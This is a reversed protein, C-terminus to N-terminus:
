NRVKLRWTTGRPSDELVIGMEDLRDRIADARAWAKEARATAREEILREVEDEDVTETYGALEAFFVEPTRDLFGLVHATSLLHCRDEKLQQLIEDPPTDEHSDILRNIEKVKEFMLGLAGSTNLDDDMVKVFEKLFPATQEESLFGASPVDEKQYLGIVRELRELTRYIRVLGTRLALVDKKSFDLPSRYHKSLLFLRLM